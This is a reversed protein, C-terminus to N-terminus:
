LVWANGDNSGHYTVCRSLPGKYASGWINPPNDARWGFLASLLLLFVESFIAFVWKPM